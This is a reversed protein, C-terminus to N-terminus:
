TLARKKSQECPTAVRGPTAGLHQKQARMTGSNCPATAVNTPLQAGCNQAAGIADAVMPNRSISHKKIEIEVRVRFIYSFDAYNSMIKGELM